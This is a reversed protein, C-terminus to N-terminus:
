GFIQVGWPGILNVYLILPGLKWKLLKIMTWKLLRIAQRRLHTWHVEFWKELTVEELRLTWLRWLGELELSLCVHLGSENDKVTVWQLSWLLSLGGKTDTSVTIELTQEPCALKWPSSSSCSLYITASSIPLHSNIQLATGHAFQQSAGLIM